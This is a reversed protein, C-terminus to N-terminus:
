EMVASSITLFSSGHSALCRRAAQFGTTTSRRSSTTGVAKGELAQLREDLSRDKDEARELKVLLETILFVADAARVYYGDDKRVLVGKVEVRVYSSPGAGPKAKGPAPEPAAGPGDAAPKAAAVKGTEADVTFRLGDYGIVWGDVGRRVQIVSWPQPYRDGFAGPWVGKRLRATQEATLSERVLREAQERYAAKEKLDPTKVGPADGLPTQDTGESLGFVGGDVEADEVFRM